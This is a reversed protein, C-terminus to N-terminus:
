KAGKAKKGQLKLVGRAAHEGAAEAASSIHKGLAPVGMNDMTQQMIFQYKERQRENRLGVEARRRLLQDADALSKASSAKARKEYVAADQTREAIQQGVGAIGAEAGLKGRRSSVEGSYGPVEMERMNAEAGTLRASELSVLTDAVQKKISVDALRSENDLRAGSLASSAAGGLDLTPAVSNATAGAPASAGGMKAGLLPNLGAAKLDAQERQHATNSMREQFAMQERAMAINQENADSQSKAGFLASGIGALGLGITIPDMFNGEEAPPPVFFNKFFIARSSSSVRAIFL